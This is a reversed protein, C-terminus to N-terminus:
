VVIMLPTPSKPSNPDTTSVHHSKSDEIIKHSKTSDLMLKSQKVFSKAKTTSYRSKKSSGNTTDDISNDEPKVYCGLLRIPVWAYYMIWAYAIVVIFPLILSSAGRRSDEYYESFKEYLPRSHMALAYRLIMILSSSYGLIIAGWKLRMIRTRINNLTDLRKEKSKTVNGQSLNCINEGLISQFRLFVIVFSNIILFTTIGHLVFYLDHFFRRDEVLLFTTLVIGVIIDCPMAVIVTRPLLLGIKQVEDFIAGFAGRRSKSRVLNKALAEQLATVIIGLLLTYSICVPTLIISYSVWTLDGSAMSSYLIMTWLETWLLTYHIKRKLKDKCPSALLLFTIALMIANISSIISYVASGGM